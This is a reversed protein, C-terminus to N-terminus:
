NKTVPLVNKLPTKKSSEVKEKVLTEILGSIKYGKDKCFEETKDVLWDVESKESERLEDINNKVLDYEDQSLGNKSSLEILLIEKTPFKNYADCYNTILEFLTKDIRDYFYDSKLFPIVKRAYDEKYILNSFIINEIKM